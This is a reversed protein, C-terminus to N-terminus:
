NGPKEEPWVREILAGIEIPGKSGKAANKWEIPAPKIRESAKAGWLSVKIAFVVVNNKASFPVVKELASKLRTELAPSLAPSLDLWAKSRGGPRVALVIFGSAPSPAAEDALSKDAANAISDVYDALVQPDGLRQQTVPVSQLLVVNEIHCLETAFASHSLLAALCLLISRM